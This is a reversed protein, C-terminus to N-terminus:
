VNQGPRAVWGDAFAVAITAAVGSLIAVTWTETKWGAAGQILGGWLPGLACGISYAASWLGQSQAIAKEHSVSDPNERAHQAVSHDVQASYIGLRGAAFLGTLALLACVLVKQQLTDHDIFRLCVLPISGLLFTTTLIIRAGYRDACRGIYPALFTPIVLSIYTLGVGRTNYGFTNQLHIALAGDFTTLLTADLVTILLMAVFWPSRWLLMVPPLSSQSGKDQACVTSSSEVDERRTNTQEETPPSVVRTKRPEIMTLRLVADLGVLGYCMAWVAYYGAADYVIGSLTTGLFLGCSVSIGVFGMHEALNDEDVVDVALALSSTWVIGSSLGVIILGGIWLGLSTGVM